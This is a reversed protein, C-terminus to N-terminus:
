FVSYYDMLRKLLLFELCEKLKRFHSVKSSKKTVDSPLSLMETPKSLVLIRNPSVLYYRVCAMFQNTLFFCDFDFVFIM